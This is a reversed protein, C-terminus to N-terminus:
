PRPQPALKIGLLVLKGDQVGFWHPVGAPILVVDGKRLARTTGNEIRSGETLGPKTVTPDILRGGSVLSGAGAMVIAYEAETPHVAPRGPKRWYELAAVSGDGQVLPHWQFGQGPKMEADMRAIAAEVAAATAFSTPDGSQAVAASAAILATGALAGSAIRRIM